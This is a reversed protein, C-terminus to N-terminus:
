RQRSQEAHHDSGVLRLVSSADHLERTASGPSCRPAPAGILTHAPASGAPRSRVRASRPAPTERADEASLCIPAPHRVPMRPGHIVTFARSVSSKYKYRLAGVKLSDKRSFWPDALPSERLYTCYITHVKGVKRAVEFPVWTSRTGKSADAIEIHDLVVM